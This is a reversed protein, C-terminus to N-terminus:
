EREREKQTEWEGVWESVYVCMTKIFTKSLMKSPATLDFSGLHEEQQTELCVKQSRPSGYSKGWKGHFTRESLSEAWTVDPVVWFLRSVPPPYLIPPPPPWKSSWLLRYFKRQPIRSYVCLVNYDSYVSCKLALADWMDCHVLTKM